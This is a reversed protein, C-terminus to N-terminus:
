KTAHVRLSLAPAALLKFTELFRRLDGIFEDALRNREGLQPTVVAFRFKLRRDFERVVLQSHLQSLPTFPETVAIGVGRRALECATASTTAEARVNLHLQGKQFAAELDLRLPYERPVLIVPKQHLDELRILKRECLEHDKPITCVLPAEVVFSTSIAPDIVPLSVLGVQFQQTAIGMRIRDAGNTHIQYTANPYKKSFAGIFPAVVNASLSALAGIRLQGHRFEKIAKAAEIIRSIGLYSRQVEEYFALGEATPVLRGRRRSFLAFGLESELNALLRSVAPQSVHILNSAETVTGAQMIARFAELHKNNM